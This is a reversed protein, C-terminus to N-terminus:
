GRPLLPVETTVLLAVGTHDIFREEDRRIVEHYRPEALAAGMEEMSDFTLEVVGDFQPTPLGSLDKIECLSYKRVHRTFEQVSLVLPAHVERWHKLFDSHSLAAKRKLCVTLKVM